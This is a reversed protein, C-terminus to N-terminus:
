SISFACYACFGKCDNDVHRSMCLLSDMIVVLNHAFKSPEIVSQSTLAMKYQLHKKLWWKVNQLAHKTIGAIRCPSFYINEGHHFVFIQLFQYYNRFGYMKNNLGFQNFCSCLVYLYVFLLYWLICPIYRCSGNSTQFDM